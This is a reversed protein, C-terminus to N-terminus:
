NVKKKNEKTLLEIDLRLITEGPIEGNGDPGYGLRSPLLFVGKSGVGMLSIAEKWGAITPSDMSFVFPIEASASSVIDGGLVTTTKYAVSLVSASDPRNDLDGGEVAYFLGSDSRKLKLSQELAYAVIFNQEEEEQNFPSKVTYQELGTSLSCGVLFLPLLWKYINKFISLM